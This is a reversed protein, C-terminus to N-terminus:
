EGEPFMANMVSANHGTNKKKKGKPLSTQTGKTGVDKIVRRPVLKGPNQTGAANAKFQVLDGEGPGKSVKRTVTTGPKATGSVQKAM